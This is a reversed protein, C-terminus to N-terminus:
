EAKDGENAEVEEEKAAKDARPAPPFYAPLADLYSNVDVQRFVCFIVKDVKDGDTGELFKRVEDCAVEAAATIPYGYVGTSIGSFAVTKIGNDVCLKLTSRYCSRLKDESERKRAGSYVPGVTHAIHKAPLRHGGTLKTEGTEAGNLTRCEKLLDPGAAAHIAGDVGGGGLLAKNAANVICDVELKTIDGRWLMVKDNLQTSHPYLIDEADRYPQLTGDAFLDNVTDLDSVKTTASREDRSEGGADKDGDKSEKGDKDEQQTDLNDGATSPAGGRSEDSTTPVPGAEVGDDQPQAGSEEVKPEKAPPADSAMDNAPSPSRKAAM